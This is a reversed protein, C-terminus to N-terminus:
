RATFGNATSSSTSPATPLSRRPTESKGGPLAETTYSHSPVSFLKFRTDFLTQCAADAALVPTSLTCAALVVALTLLLRMSPLM